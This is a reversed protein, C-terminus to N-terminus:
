SSPAPRPPVSPYIVAIVTWSRSNYPALRGVEQWGLPLQPLDPERIFLVENARIDLDSLNKVARLNPRLAERYIGEVNFRGNRPNSHGSIANELIAFDKYQTRLGEVLLDIQLRETDHLVENVNRLVARFFPPLSLLTILAATLIAPIRRDRSWFEKTLACTGVIALISVLPFYPSLYWPVRSAACSYLAIPLVCWAVLFRIEKRYRFTISAGCLGAILLAQPIVGARVFLYWLYFGSSGTNHGEFGSLARELIEVGLFVSLAKGGALLWLLTAYSGFAFIPLAVILLANRWGLRVESSPRTVAIALLSCLAPVLGAVSKTLVALSWIAGLICSDLRTIGGPSTVIRWSQLAGLLTLVCLLGDLVAHRFSHQAIVLEPMGLLLAAGLLAILLHQTVAYALIATIAVAVIGLLGDLVRFTFNSEGFVAPAISGLWLKLPPKEFTPVNGHKLPLLDGNHIISQTIRVYIVEDSRVSISSAGLNWLFLFSACSLLILAGAVKASTTRMGLGM